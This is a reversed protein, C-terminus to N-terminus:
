AGLRLHWADHCQDDHITRGCRECVLGWRSARYGPRERQNIGLFEGARNLYKGM